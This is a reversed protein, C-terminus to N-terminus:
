KTINTPISEILMLSTIRYQAELENNAPVAYKMELKCYYGMDHYQSLSGIEQIAVYVTITGDGHDIHGRYDTKYKDVDDVEYPLFVGKASDYHSSNKIKAIDEDSIDYEWRVDEKITEDFFDHPLGCQCELAAKARGKWSYLETNMPTNDDIFYNLRFFIANGLGTSANLPNVSKSEKEGCQKCERSMEGAKNLAPQKSYYWRWDHEAFGLGENYSHQCNACTYIHVVECNVIGKGSIYYKHDCNEVTPSQSTEQESESVSGSEETNGTSEETGTTNNETSGISEETGTTNSETSGTSEETGTTNSEINTTTGTSEGTPTNENDGRCAALAFLMSLALLLALISKM